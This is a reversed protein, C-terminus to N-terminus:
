CIHLHLTFLRYKHLIPAQTPDHPFQVSHSIIRPFPMLCLTPLFLPMWAHLRSSSASPTSIITPSSNRQHGFSPLRYLSDFRSKAKLNLCHCYIQRAQVRSGTVNQKGEREEQPTMSRDFYALCTPQCYSVYTPVEM